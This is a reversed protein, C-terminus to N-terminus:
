VKQYRWVKKLSKKIKKNYVINIVNKGENILREIVEKRKEQSADWDGEFYEVIKMDNIYEIGKELGYKSLMTNLHILNNREDPVGNIFAKFNTRHFLKKILLQRRTIGVYVGDPTEISYITVNEKVSYYEKSYQTLKEKNKVFYSQETGWYYDPHEERYKKANLKSCTKCRKQLGDPACSMKYFNSEDFWLHCQTCQKMNIKTEINIFITFFVSLILYYYNLIIRFKYSKPKQM